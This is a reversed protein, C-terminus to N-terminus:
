HVQIFNEQVPEPDPKVPEPLQNTPQPKIATILQKQIPEELRGEDTTLGTTEGETDM